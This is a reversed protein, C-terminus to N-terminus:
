TQELSLLTKDRWTASGALLMFVGKVGGMGGAICIWDLLM